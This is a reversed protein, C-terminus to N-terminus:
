KIGESSNSDVLEPPCQERLNRGSHKLENEAHFALYLEIFKPHILPCKDRKKKPYNAKEHFNTEVLSPLTTIKISPIKSFKQIKQIKLIEFIKM